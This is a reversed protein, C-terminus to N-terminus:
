SFVDQISLSYFPTPCVVEPSCSRSGQCTRREASIGIGLGDILVSPCDVLGVYIERPGM